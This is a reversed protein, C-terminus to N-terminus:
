RKVVKQLRIGTETKVRIFYMGNSLDDGKVETDIEAGVVGNRIVAGSITTLEWEGSDSSRIYWNGSSPNPYCLFGPEGDEESVGTELDIWTYQSTNTVVAENFDFYIHATNRITYGTQVRGTIRFFVAGKSGEEDTTSDPLMINPFYFSIKGASDITTEVYHSSMLVEMTERKLAPDLTDVVLVNIATDNGNNQFRIRYTLVSDMMGLTGIKGYVYDPVLMNDNPDYPGMYVVGSNMANNTLNGDGVLPGAQNQFYATQGLPATIDTMFNVQVLTDTMPQLTPMQYNLTKLSLLHNVPPHSSNTYLLHNPYTVNLWPSVVTNGANQVKVLQQFPFGRRAALYNGSTVRIDQIPSGATYRFDNFYYHINPGLAQLIHSNNLAPFTQVFGGPTPTTITYIGVPVAPFSYYGQSNTFATTNPSSLTVPRGSMGPEGPDEQGNANLDQIVRGSILVNGCPGQPVTLTSQGVCGIADTVTLGYTGGTLNMVTPSNPSPNLSWNYQYPPTGGVVTVHIAGDTLMCHSGIISPTISLMNAVSINRTYNGTCGNADTVTVSYSGPGLGTASSGTQGNSWLYTFPPTAGGTLNAQLIGTTLAPCLSPAVQSINGTLQVINQQVLVSGSGMCGNQDTFTYSHTGPALGTVTQTTQIPITNWQWTYPPVGNVPVITAIGNQQTCTAHQVQAQTLLIQSTSPVYLTRFGQCGQSNTVSVSYNGSALGTAVTGTQVPTTNWTLIFPGQALTNPIGVHISGNSLNCQDPSITIVNPTLSPNQHFLTSSGTFVCGDVDRVTFLYIGQSLGTAIATSQVPNTNWNFTFPPSGGVVGLTVRGSNTSTCVPHQVSQNVATNGVTVTVVVSDSCGNADTVICKYLGPSLSQITDTTQPPQTNWWYTFPAVGNQPIAWAKGNSCFSPRSGGQIMLPNPPLVVFTTSDVCAAADSVTCRYTGPAVNRLTDSLAPPVSNWLYSYPAQGNSVTVWSKNQSCLGSNVQTQISLTTANYAVQITDRCFGADQIYCTYTGHAVLGLTDSFVPPSTNWQFSYPPTGLTPTVWIRGSDCSVAQYGSTTTIPSSPSPLTIVLSSGCWNADYASVYYTGATVSPHTAAYVNPSTYWTYSYPATGGTALLTAPYHTSCVQNAPTVQIQLGIPNAIPQSHTCTSNDVLHVMQTTQVSHVQAAQTYQPPSLEWFYQYPGNGGIPVITDQYSSPYPCGTHEPYQTANLLPTPSRVFFTTRTSCGLATSVLVQHLGGPYQYATDLTEGNSWLCTYPGASNQHTLWAKGNANPCTAPNSLVRVSLTDPILYTHGFVCGNNLNTMTLRILGPPLGVAIMSNQVPTSSWSYSYSGSPASVVGIRGNNGSCSPNLVSVQAPVTKREQIQVFHNVRCGNADTIRLNYTGNPMGHINQTTATGSQHSWLYTYPAPGGSVSSSLSATDGCLLSSAHNINVNLNFGVITDAFQLECNNADVVTLMHIGKDLFANGVLNTQNFATSGSSWHMAYPIAIGTFTYQSQGAQNPNCYAQSNLFSVSYARPITYWHFLSVPNYPDSDRVIISYQGPDLGSYVTDSNNPFVLPSASVPILEIQYPRVGGTIHIELTNGRNCGNGTHTVSFSLPSTQADLYSGFCFLLLFAVAAYLRTIM